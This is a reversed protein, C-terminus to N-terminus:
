IIRGATCQIADIKPQTADIKTASTNAIANPQMATRCRYFRFVREVDLFREHALNRVANCAKDDFLISAARWRSRPAMNKKGAKKMAKGANVGPNGPRDESPKRNVVVFYFVLLILVILIVATM